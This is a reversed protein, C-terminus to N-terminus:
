FISVLVTRAAHSAAILWRDHRAYFKATTWHVHAHVGADDHGLQHAEELLRLTTAYDGELEAEGATSLARLAGASDGRAQTMEYATM